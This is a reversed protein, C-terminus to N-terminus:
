MSIHRTTFATAFPLQQNRRQLCWHFDSGLHSHPGSRACEVLNPHHHTMHQSCNQMSTIGIGANWISSIWKSSQFEATTMTSIRTTTEHTVRHWQGNHHENEDFGTAMDQNHNPRCTGWFKSLVLHPSQLALLPCFFFLFCCFVAFPLNIYSTWNKWVTAHGWDQVKLRVCEVSDNGCMFEYLHVVCLYFMESLCQASEYQRYAKMETHTRMICDYHQVATVKDQTYSATHHGRSKIYVCM